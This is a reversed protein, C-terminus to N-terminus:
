AQVAEALAVLRAQEPATLTGNEWKDTLRTLTDNPNM